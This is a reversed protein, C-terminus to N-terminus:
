APQFDKKAPKTKEWLSIAQEAAALVSVGRKAAAVKLKKAAPKTVSITTYESM